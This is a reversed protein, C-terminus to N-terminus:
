SNDCTEQGSCCGGQGRREVDKTTLATTDDGLAVSRSDDSERVIIARILVSGLQNVNEVSSTCLCREEPSTGEVAADVVLGSSDLLGIGRAVLDRGVSPLGVRSGKPDSLTNQGYNAQYTEGVLYPNM